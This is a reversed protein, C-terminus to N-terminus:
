LLTFGVLTVATACEVLAGFVDGTMGGLRRVAHSTLLLAVLLSIVQALLWGGIDADVAWALLAGVALVGVTQALVSATSVSGAVLAGFGDPRVSPVRRHAALLVALRGTAAAVALAAVPTWETGPLTSVAGIDLALVFFITLVGFPGIDSQRMITLARAPPAQSALGDATDALGDLHLGRTLVALLGVGLVAGVFGAHPAWQRIAAVPLGAGAGIVLGITPLWNVLRRGDDRTAIAVAPAPLITFTSIAGRLGRASM